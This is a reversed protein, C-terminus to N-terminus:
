IASSCNYHANYSQSNQLVGSSDISPNEIFRTCADQVIGSFLADDQDQSTADDSGWGWVSVGSIVKGLDIGSGVPDKYFQQVEDLGTIVQEHYCPGSHDKYPCNVKSQDPDYVSKTQLMAEFESSLNYHNPLYYVYQSGNIDQTSKYSVNGFASTAAGVVSDSKLWALAQLMTKFSGQAWGDTEYQSLSDIMPWINLPRSNSVTFIITNFGDVAVPDLAYTNYLVGAVSTASQSLTGYLSVYNADLDSSSTKVPQYKDSDDHYRITHVPIAALPSITLSLQYKYTTSPQNGVTDYSDKNMTDLLQTFDATKKNMSYPMKADDPGILKTDLAWANYPVQDDDSPWFKPWVNVPSPGYQKSLLELYAYRYTNNKLFEGDGLWKQNGHSSQDDYYINIGDGTAPKLLLSGALKIVNASLKEIDAKSDPFKVEPGGVSLFVHVHMDHLDNIVRQLTYFEQPNSHYIGTNDLTAGSTYKTALSIPDFFGIYIRDFPVRSEKQEMSKIKKELGTIGGNDKSPQWYVSVHHPQLTDSEYKEGQGSNVLKFDSAALGLINHKESAVLKGSAYFQSPPSYEGADTDSNTYKQPMSYSSRWYFTRSDSTAPLEITADHSDAGSVTGNANIVSFNFDKAGAPLEVNIKLDEPQVATCHFDSGSLTIQTLSSSVEVDKEASCLDYTAKNLYTYSSQLTIVKGYSSLPLAVSGAAADSETYTIQDNSTNLVTTLPKDLTISSIDPSVTYLLKYVPPQNPHHKPAKTQQCATLGAMCLLSVSGAVIIYRSSKPVLRSVLKM